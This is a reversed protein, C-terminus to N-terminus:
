YKWTGLYTWMDACIVYKYSAMYLKLHVPLSSTISVRQRRLHLMMMSGGMLFIPSFYICKTITVMIMTMEDACGAHTLIELCSCLRMLYKKRFFQIFILVCFTKKQLVLDVRRCKKVHRCAVMKEFSHRLIIMVIIIINKISPESEDRINKLTIHIIIMVNPWTSDLFFFFFFTKKHESSKGAVVKKRCHFIYYIYMLLISHAHVLCAHM